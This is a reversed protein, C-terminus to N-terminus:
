LLRNRVEASLSPHFIRHHLKGAVRVVGVLAKNKWGQWCFLTFTSEVVPILGNVTGSSLTDTLSAITKWLLYQPVYESNILFVYAIFSFLHM